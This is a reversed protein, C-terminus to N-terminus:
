RLLKLGFGPANPPILKGDKIVYGSLDVDDSTSTVGEITVTNGLGGTMHATYFTKLLSGWAHPSAQVGYQILSPMLKRWNTFGLGEIDSIHVDMLKQKMLTDLLAPDPDAEGEALLSKVNAKAMWERLKRYDEVTEHFPEEIWFLPTNGIGELYATFENVTFGNNGDVLIECDPFAQAVAKTVEIDRALGDKLSMWRHGRGIKLKFQRYGYEYDYRCNALVKDIGGPAHAPELDDFYIMGSYYKTTFPQDRGLLAYVPKNLAVGALDHLAIDFPLYRDDTIGANVNFVDSLKKGILEPVLQQAEGRGGRLSAWGKAGKDTTIICIGIRPGFGHVDLRANKGVFRPYQLRVDDFAVSQITHYALEAHMRSADPRGEFVRALATKSVVSAAIGANLAYIFERRRM